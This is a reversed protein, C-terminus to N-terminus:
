TLRSVEFRLCVYQSEHRGQAQHGLVLGVVILVVVLCVTGAIMFRSKPALFVPGLGVRLLAM